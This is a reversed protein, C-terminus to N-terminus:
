TAVRGTGWTGLDVKCHATQQNKLLADIVSFVQHINVQILASVLKFREVDNDSGDGQGDSEDGHYALNSRVGVLREPLTNSILTPM